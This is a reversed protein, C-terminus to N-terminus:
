LSVVLSGQHCGLCEFTKKKPPTLRKAAKQLKFIAFMALTNLATPSITAFVSCASHVNQATLHVFCRLGTRVQAVRLGHGLM